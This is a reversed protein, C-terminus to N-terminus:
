DKDECIFDKFSKLYTLGEEYATLHYGLTGIDQYRGNKDKIDFNKYKQSMWNYKGSTDGKKQFLDTLEISFDDIKISGQKLPLLNLLEDYSLALIGFGDESGKRDTNFCMNMKRMDMGNKKFTDYLNKMENQTPTNGRMVLMNLDVFYRGTTINDYYKDELYQRYDRLRQKDSKAWGEVESVDKGDIPIFMLEHNGNEEFYIEGGYIIFAYCEYDYFSTQRNNIFITDPSVFTTAEPILEEPIIKM